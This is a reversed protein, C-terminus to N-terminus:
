FGQGKPSTQSTGSMVNWPFGIVSPCQVTATIAILFLNQFTGNGLGITEFIFSVDFPMTKQGLFFM